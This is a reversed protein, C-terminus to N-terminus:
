NGPSIKGGLYKRKGREKNREEGRERRTERDKEGERKRTEGEAEM